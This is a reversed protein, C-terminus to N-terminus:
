VSFNIEREVPKLSAKAHASNFRFGAQIKSNMLVHM